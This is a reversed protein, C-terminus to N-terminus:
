NKVVVVVVPVLVNKTHASIMMEQTIGRNRNTITTTSLSISAILREDRQTCFLLSFSLSIKKDNEYDNNYHFRIRGLSMLLVVLRPLNLYVLILRYVDFVSRKINSWWMYSYISYSTMDLSTILKMECSLHCIKNLIFSLTLEQIYAYNQVIPFQLGPSM